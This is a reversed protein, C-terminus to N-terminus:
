SPTLSTHVSGILPTISQVVYKPVTNQIDCLYLSTRRILSVYAGEEAAFRWKLVALVASLTGSVANSLIVQVSEIHVAYALMAVSGAVNIACM